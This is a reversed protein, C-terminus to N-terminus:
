IGLERYLEITKRASESWSYRTVRERGKEILRERLEGDTLATAIAGAIDEVDEPDVLLAAEGVVEPIASTGSTVVPMGCAMAELPPLGFGEYLSPYVFLDAMNYVSPMDEQRADEICVVSRAIGLDRAMGEVDVNGWGRRGVIVLGRGAAERGKLRGYAELLRGLNKRPQITGVFLIFPAPLGLRGRVEELKGRDRVAAFEEGVANPIIRIKRGPVRLLERIDDRSCSSITSVADARPALVALHFRMYHRLLFSWSLPQRFPSLDHLTLVTRFPRRASIISNTYHVLDVGHKEFFRPVQLHPFVVHNYLAYLRPHPVPLIHQEINPRDLGTQKTNSLVVFRWGPELEAMCAVLKRSVTRAGGTRNGWGIEIGIRM